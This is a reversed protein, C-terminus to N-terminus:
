QLVLLITTTIRNEENSCGQVWVPVVKLSEVLKNSHRLLSSLIWSSTISLTSTSRSTKEWRLGTIFNTQALFTSTITSWGEVWISHLVQPPGLYRLHAQQILSSSSITRSHSVPFRIMAMRAKSNGQRAMKSNPVTIMIPPIYGM